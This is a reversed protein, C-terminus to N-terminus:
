STVQVARNHTRFYSHFTNLINNLNSHGQLKDYTTCNYSLQQGVSVHTNYTFDLQVENHKAKDHLNLRFFRPWLLYLKVFIM